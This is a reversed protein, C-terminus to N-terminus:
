NKIGFGKPAKLEGADYMNIYIAITDSSGEWTLLYEDLLITNGFIANKSKMPCCSRNRFYSISEGNPGCLANLYRRENKPGNSNSVGGVEVPKNPSLAYQDDDSVETIKFTDANKLVPKALNSNRTTSCAGLTLLILISFFTKQM